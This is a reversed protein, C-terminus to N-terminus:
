RKRLKEKKYKECINCSLKLNKKKKDRRGLRKDKGSRERLNM